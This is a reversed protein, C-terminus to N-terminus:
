CPLLALDGGFRATIWNSPNPDTEILSYLLGNNRVSPV